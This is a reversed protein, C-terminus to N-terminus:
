KVREKKNLEKRNGGKNRSYKNLKYNKDIEIFKIVYTFSFFSKWRLEECNQKTEINVINKRQNCVIQHSPKQSLNNLM